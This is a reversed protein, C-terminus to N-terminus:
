TNDLFHQMIKNVMMNLETEPNPTKSMVNYVIQTLTQKM